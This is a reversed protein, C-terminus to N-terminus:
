TSKEDERGKGNKKIDKTLSPLKPLSRIKPICIGDKNCVSEEGCDSDSKCGIGNLSGDLQIPVVSLDSVTNSDSVFEEKDQTNNIQGIAKEKSTATNDRSYKTYVFIFCLVLVIVFLSTWLTKITAMRMINTMISTNQLTSSM